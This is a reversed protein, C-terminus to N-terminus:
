AFNMIVKQGGFGTRVFALEKSARRYLKALVIGLVTTFVLCAGVIIGAFTLTETDFALMLSSYQADTLAGWNIQAISM